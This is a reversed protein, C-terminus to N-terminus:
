WWGSREERAHAARIKNVARRVAKRKRELADRHDRFQKLRLLAFYTQVRAGPARSAPWVGSAVLIMRHEHFLEPSLDTDRTENCARCAAVLNARDHVGGKSVPVLHERTALYPGPREKSMPGCCYACRWNQAEALAIRSVNSKSM